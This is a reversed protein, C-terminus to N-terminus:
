HAFPRCLPTLRPILRFLLRNKWVPARTQMFHQSIRLIHRRAGAGDPMGSSGHQATLGPLGHASPPKWGAGLPWNSLLCCPTNHPATACFPAKLGFRCPCLAHVCCHLMAATVAGVGLAPVRHLLAVRLGVAQKIVRHAAGAHIAPGRAARPRGQAGVHAKVVAANIGLLGAKAGAQPALRFLRRQGLAMRGNHRVRAAQDVGGLRRGVQAAQGCRAGQAAMM